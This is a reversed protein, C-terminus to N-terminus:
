DLTGDYEGLFDLIMDRERRSEEVTERTYETDSQDECWGLDPEDLSGLWEIDEDLRKAAALVRYAYHEYPESNKMRAIVSEKAMFKKVAQEFSLM